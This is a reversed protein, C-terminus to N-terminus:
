LTIKWNSYLQHINETSYSFECFAGRTPEVSSVSSRKRLQIGRPYIKSVLSM